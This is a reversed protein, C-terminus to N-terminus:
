GTPVYDPPNPLLEPLDQLPDGIIERKIRYKEPLEGYVPKTKLAVPKYRKGAFSELVPVEPNTYTEASETEGDRYDENLFSM